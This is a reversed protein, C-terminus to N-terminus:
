PFLPSEEVIRDRILNYYDEDGHEYKRFIAWSVFDVAQLAKEEFPTKIQIEIEINHRASIQRNLYDKFNQNLFKNTERKSAVLCVKTSSFVGRRSYIRDLLINTVYNYLVPKEDKLRTYVKSKNLYITMISIEKQALGKLIRQRTVPKEKFSHLVGKRKKYKKALNSHVRKVIKEISRKHEIFLCTIVFVRTTKRKSFDFGLDGSEDLYLYM